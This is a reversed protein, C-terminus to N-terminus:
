LRLKYTQQKKIIEKEFSNEQKIREQEQQLSHFFDANLKIKRDIQSLKIETEDDYNGVKFGQVNGQKNICPIIRFNYDKMMSTYTELNQPFFSKVQQHAKRFLERFSKLKAKLDKERQQKIEKASLLGMEKAIRHAIHQARKGIFHDKILSGDDKVRNLILHLHKHAKETHIFSIYQADNVNIGLHELFKQSLEQWQENTLINGDSKEPSIVISITNNKCRLNQNQIVQMSSYLQSPTDGSLNQRELEYGKKENVVYGILASGGICSKAKAIM